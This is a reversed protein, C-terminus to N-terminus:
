GKDNLKLPLTFYFTSGKGAASNFYFTWSHAQILSRSISLGMATGNLMTTHFTTFIKLKQEEDIGRGNDNISVQIDNKPTL